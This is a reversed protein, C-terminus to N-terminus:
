FYKFVETKILHINMDNILCNNILKILNPKFKIKRHNKKIINKLNEPSVFNIDM